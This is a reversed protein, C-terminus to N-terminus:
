GKVEIAIRGKGEPLVSVVEKKHLKYLEVIEKPIRVMLSNGSQGIVVRKGIGWLGLEKARQEIQNSADETYFAEGCKTCVDAEYEGLKIDSFWFPAKENKLKGGCIPCEM